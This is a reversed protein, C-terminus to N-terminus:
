FHSSVPNKKYMTLVSFDEIYRATPLTTLLDDPIKEGTEECYGYVGLELKQLAREVDTLDQKVHHHLMQKKDDGVSFFFEKAVETEHLRQSLEQKTLELERKIEKYKKQCM